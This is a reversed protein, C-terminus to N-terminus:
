SHECPRGPLIGVDVSLQTVFVGSLALSLGCSCLFPRRTPASKNANQEQKSCKENQESGALSSSPGAQLVTIFRRPSVESVNDEKWQGESDAPPCVRLMGRPRVGLRRRVGGGKRGCQSRWFCRRGASGPLSGREGGHSHGRSLGDDGGGPRGRDGRDLGPRM